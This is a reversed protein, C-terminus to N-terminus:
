LAGRGLTLRGPRASNRQFLPSAGFSEALVGGFVATTLHRDGKEVPQKTDVVGLELGRKHALDLGM